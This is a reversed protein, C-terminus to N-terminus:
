ERADETVQKVELINEYEVQCDKLISKVKGDQTIVIDVLCVTDDPNGAIKAGGSLEFLLHKRRQSILWGPDNVRQISLITNVAIDLPKGNMHSPNMRIMTQTFRGQFENGGQLTFTYLVNPLVLRARETAHDHTIM